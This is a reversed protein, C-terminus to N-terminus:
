INSKIRALSTYEKLVRKIRITVVSYLKMRPPFDRRSRYFNLKERKTCQDLWKIVKESRTPPIRVGCELFNSTADPIRSFKAQLILFGPNQFRTFLEFFGSNVLLRFGSDLNWQWLSSDVGPIRFGRRTIWIWTQRLNGWVPRVMKRPRKPQRHLLFEVASFPGLTLGIKVTAHSLMLEFTLGLLVRNYM